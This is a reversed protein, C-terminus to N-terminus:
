RRVTCAAATWHTLPSVGFTHCPSGQHRLHVTASLTVFRCLLLGRADGYVQNIKSRETSSQVAPKPPVYDNSDPQYTGPGPLNSSNPPEVRILRPATSCYRVSGISPRGPLHVPTLTRSFRDFGTDVPQYFGPGISTARTPHPMTGGDAISKRMYDGRLSKTAFSSTLRMSQQVPRFTSAIDYHGPGPSDYAGDAAFANYAATTKSRNATASYSWQNSLTAESFTAVM